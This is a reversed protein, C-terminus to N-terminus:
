FRYAVGVSAVLPDLRHQTRLVADGARDRFTATPRAFYRKADASLAFRRGVPIDVGAQLAFAAKAPIDIREIGMTKLAAGPEKNAFIFLAPGAGLYPQVRGLNFHYKATVTAPVIFVKDVLRVNALAGTGDMHHMTGCCITEISLAPSVFYEVALTPVYNDSGAVDAGALAGIAPGSQTTISGDPLVATALLKIQWRGQEPEAAHASVSFAGAALASIMMNNM